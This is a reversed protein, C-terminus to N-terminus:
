KNAKAPLAMVKAGDRAAILTAEYWKMLERRLEVRKARDYISAVKDQGVKHDLQAEIVDGDKGAERCITSFTSRWSHPSHKDALGLKNRYHKDVTEPTIPNSAGVRPLCVYVARKGDAERWTRLQRLLEPPLPVVHDGRATDKHQKMRSRPVTWNGANPDHKHAHGEGIPVEVGHLAFEDWRAGVIEGIRLATFALLVHTRQVGICPQPDLDRAHRLIAGVGKLDVIAPYNRAAATRKTMQPRPLPNVEIHGEECAFNLVANIRARIKAAMMPADNAAVDKMVSSVLKARVEKVAVANLKSRIIAGSGKREKDKDALGFSQRVKLAHDESWGMNKVREKIWAEAVSGFTNAKAENRETEEAIREEKQIDRYETLQKGKAVLKLLEAAEDRAEALSFRKLKGITYIQERGNHSYRLQWSKVGTPAVRLWLCDGDSLRYPNAKPKANRIKLDSLNGM